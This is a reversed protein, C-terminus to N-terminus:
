RRGITYDEWALIKQERSKGSKDGDGMMFYLYGDSPGFLIQGGHNSAYPLGMTLIRRVEDRATSALSPSNATFEAIVSQYQCPQIGDDDSRSKFSQLWSRFQM